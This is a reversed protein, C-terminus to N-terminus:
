DSIPTGAAALAQRRQVDLLAAGLWYVAERIQEYALVHDQPVGTAHPDVVDDPSTASSHSRHWLKRAEHAQPHHPLPPMGRAANMEEVFWGDVADGGFPMPAVAGRPDEAPFRSEWGNPSLARYYGAEIMGHSLMWECIRGAQRMTFLRPRTDADATAVMSQNPRAAAIILDAWGTLELDVPTSKHNEGVGQLAPAAPCAPLGPVASTGASRLEVNTLGWAAVLQRM